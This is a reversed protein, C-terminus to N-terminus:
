IENAPNRVCNKRQNIGVIATDAAVREIFPRPDGDTFRTETRRRRQIGFEEAGNAIGREQICKREIRRADARCAALTQAAEIM